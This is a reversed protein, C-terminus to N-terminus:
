FETPNCAVGESATWLRTAGALTFTPVADILAADLGIEELLVRAMPRIHVKMEIAAPMQMPVEYVRTIHPDQYDPDWPPLDSHGPLVDTEYDAAEWFFHTEDQNEDYIRDGLRWLYPDDLHDLAMEPSIRGSEFITNGADDTAVIEVWARRDPNAGSPWSHGAAINELAAWITFGAGDPDEYVCLQSVLTTNLANQVALMQEERQPFDTIAVDVGPFSHDHIRRVGVGEMDAALGDRGQMHCGSCTLMKGPENVAFLSDQWEAYTREVHVGLPNVIDHCSGCLAASDYHDRDHIHSYASAHASNEVPNQLGGRMTDDNALRLPNNHTGEVADVTHCFYCTIGQLHAPLEGLNLGDTTAGTRVAMPAHCNVCFDGVPSPGEQAKANMAIFAPDTSAYAHMSGSWEEYHNPHCTKCAEPDM